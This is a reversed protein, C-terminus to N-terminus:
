LQYLSVVSEQKTLITTTTRKVDNRKDHARNHLMGAAVSCNIQNGSSIKAYIYLIRKCLLLTPTNVNCDIFYPFDIIKHDIESFTSRSVPKGSCWSESLWTHKHSIFIIQHNWLRRAYKCGSNHQPNWKCAQSQNTSLLRRGYTLHRHSNVCTSSNWM